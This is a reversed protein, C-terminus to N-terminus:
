INGVVLERSYYEEQSTVSLQEVFKSRKFDWLKMVM